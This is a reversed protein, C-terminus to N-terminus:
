HAYGRARAIRQCDECLGDVHLVDFGESDLFSAALAARKGSGCHVYLRRDRPLEGLRSRLRTYPINIAGHLHGESFESANRVDLIIEEPNLAEHNWTAFDVHATRETLLGESAAESALVYGALHDFGIRYLQRSMEEVDAEREVLLLIQEEEAVYSGASTLFFAGPYPAYLAGAPHGADFVARDSRTDLLKGRSKAAFITAEDSTLKALSPLFGGTVAIGDRNVKKMRAFYLPPDPQGSLIDGVFAALDANALKLAHNFKREYGLVSIPIAGLAKGCSSGEGHGPLVQLFDPLDALREVLSKQLQRASFEGVGSRGGATELLDPRGVDGVFLFDGTILAMPENAGGGSDTILYSLHEPTHGPTHLATVEINGVRFGERHRLFIVNSRGRPWQYSWEEGGEGSLYLMVPSDKAFEQSGSVFDAHIHTEAVATIRLDNARALARYRDIDREPDIILAEGTRPCGILYAYQALAPDSIQRLFM